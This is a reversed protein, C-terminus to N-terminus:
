EGWRRHFWLWQEPYERVWDEVVRTVLATTGEVDIKGDTDRPLKLEDTIELLFRGKPLRVVRAGHVPCDHVRALKAILPNTWAPHGFFPVKIGRNFKQDVLLGVHTNRELAASLKFAAGPGSAVLNETVLNRAEALRKAIYKN